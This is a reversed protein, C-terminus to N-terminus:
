EVIFQISGALHRALASAHSPTEGGVVVAGVRDDSSLFPKITDGPRVSLETALVDPHDRVHEWGEIAVLRGPPPSFYRSAAARTLTLEPTSRGMADDFVHGFMELGPIVHHLMRHIYDGGLRAHLEGLVIGNETLWLEVHFLGTRLGVVELAKTVTDEIEMRIADPIPAPMTHGIEVFTPLPLKDKATVALVHPHGSLFMGEVSFEPGHVFEEVLFNQSAPLGDVAHELQAADTVLAVGESGSADRPKVVWPGPSSEIIARAQGSDACLWVGPQAFGAAELWARCADKTRVRRVANPPNGAVGVASAIEAATIVALERVTFVVDFREGRAIRERAWAVSATEDEFDLSSVADAIECAPVTEALASEQNILHTRMGRSRAQELAMVAIDIGLPAPGAGGVLLMTPKM